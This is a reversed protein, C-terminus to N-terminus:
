KEKWHGWKMISEKRSQTTRMTIITTTDSASLCRVLVNDTPPSKCDTPPSKCDGARTMARQVARAMTM